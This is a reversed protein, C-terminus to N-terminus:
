KSVLKSMFDAENIIFREHLGEGIVGQEDKAVVKFTLKRGEWAILESECEVSMGVPTAKLHKVNVLTGVTLHGADLQDQVSEQCTKEMLAIMAPTAFVEILGSGYRAATLEITVVLQQKGITGIKIQM